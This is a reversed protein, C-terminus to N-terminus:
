LVYDVAEQRTMFFHIGSTCENFRNVDFPTRPEVICGVRYFFTPDFDSFAINKDAKSGDINEIALVKAKSCRCKRGYASSRKADETIKLKVIYGGAVKKWGIFEGSKPCRLPYLSNLTEEEIITANTLLTHTLLSDTLDAGTLNAFRLDAFRLDAGHLNAGSLNACSLDAGHLNAYRLDAGHLDVDWLNLSASLDAREGDFQHNLWKKHRDLIVELKMVCKMVFDGKLHYM